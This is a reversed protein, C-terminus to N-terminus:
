MARVPVEQLIFFFLKIGNVRVGKPALYGALQVTLQDLGAKSVAYYPISMAKLIVLSFPRVIPKSSNSSINVINGKTAILHPMALKSLSLVRSMM